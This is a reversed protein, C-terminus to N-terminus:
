KARRHRRYWDKRKQYPMVGEAELRNQELYKQLARFPKGWEAVRSFPSLSWLGKGLKRALLGCLSRIFANYEKRGPITAVFHLHDSAVAHDYIKLGFKGALRRAERLILPGATHFPRKTKLVFHIPRNKALPRSNKRRGSALQGGHALPPLKSQSRGLCLALSFM